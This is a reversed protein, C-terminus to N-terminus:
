RMRCLGIIGICGVNIWQLGTFKAKERKEYCKKTWNTIVLLHVYFSFVAHCLM